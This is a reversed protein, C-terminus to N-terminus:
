QLLELKLEFRVEDGKPAQNASSITVSNFYTSKELEKQINDVTNFDKTVGKIRVVEFDAVLRKVRITYVMPIRASIETLLSLVSHGAGGQTGSYTKKIESIKVELQKSPNVIRKVEPLTESFVKVVQSRMEEQRDALKKFDYGLWIVAVIVSLLVPLGAKLFLARIELDSRQKKFEGTRFNFNEQKANFKLALALVSDMCGPVYDSCVAPDIKILPQESLNYNSAPVGLYPFLYAAVQRQVLSEGAFCLCYNKKELDLVQSSLLTQKVLRSIEAPVDGGNEWYLLTQEFPGSPEVPGATTLTGKDDEVSSDIILSRILGIKGDTVIILGVRSRHIDLLVCDKEVADACRLAIRAGRIEITDPELGANELVSLIEILAEKEITASVVNTGEVSTGAVVFDVHSEDIETPALEVLEFPLTQAIKKKDSFPLIINRYSFYEAGLSLHCTGSISGVEKCVRSIGEELSIEDLEARGCGVVVTVKTSTDVLVASVVNDTIDLCFATDTM